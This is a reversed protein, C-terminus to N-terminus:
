DFDTILTIIEAPSERNEGLHEEILGNLNRDGGIVRGNKQRWCAILRIYRMNEYSDVHYIDFYIYGEPLGTDLDRLNVARNDFSDLDDFNVQGILTELQGQMANNVLMINRSFENLEQCKIYTYFLAAM